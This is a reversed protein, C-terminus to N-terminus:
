GVSEILFGADVPSMTQAGKFALILAVAPDIKNEPRDKRPFVNENADPRVTVNSLAWTLVPDAAHHVRGAAVAAEFDKMPASLHQVQQPVEIVLKEEIGERKLRDTLARLNWPDGMFVGMAHLKADALIEDGIVDYDIDNGETATLWGEHEWKQYHRNKPDDVAARPCYHRAFVTFHPEGEVERRFVRAVSALDLRSALDAGFAAPEGIFDAAVLTADGCRTWWEINMWPSRASCWVDLHKTKFINQQRADNVAARQQERLYDGKVSVDFNPNAMRLADESTWDTGEDVAYIIGFLRDDEAGELMKQVRERLAYCPGGIDEGATTIVEALPQRRAGMGTVMTDFQTADQHEHYEDTISLSPSAGDGPKGIIPELRAGTALITLSKANVEVGYQELFEPTREAMQKAPRFVEWAQKESTAGSYVESGFEGDAAFFYLADIAADTSKGNKRPMEEYSVRFRRMGTEKEVWGFKMSRRFCQHPQLVIRNPVGPKPIAWEGKVHPLLEAFRCAREAKARDFTFPYSKRRARKLDALHRECALRTWKCALIRGGVVDKAYRSATEVHPYKSKSM